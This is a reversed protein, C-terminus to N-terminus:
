TRFAIGRIDHVRVKVLPTLDEPFLSHATKITDQLLFSIAAEPIPRNSDQVSGFPNGSWSPLTSILYRRLARVPYLLREEDDGGVVSSLSHLRFERPISNLGTETKAMFVPIYSM